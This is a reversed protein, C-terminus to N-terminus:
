LVTKTHCYIHDFKAMHEVIGLMSATKRMIHEQHLGKGLGSGINSQDTQKQNWKNVFYMHFSTKFYVPLFDLLELKCSGFTLFYM